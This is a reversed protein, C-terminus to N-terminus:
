HLSNNGLDIKKGEYPQCELAPYEPTGCSISGLTGAKLDHDKLQLMSKRDSLLTIISYDELQFVVWVAGDLMKTSPISIPGLM